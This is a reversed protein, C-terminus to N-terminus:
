EEEGETSNLFEDYLGPDMSGYNGIESVEDLDADVEQLAEVVEASILAAARNTNGIPCLKGEAEVLTDEWVTMPDGPLDVNVKYTNGIRTVVVAVSFQDTITDFPPSQILNVDVKEWRLNDLVNAM